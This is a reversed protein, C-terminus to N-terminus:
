DHALKKGTVRLYCYAFISNAYELVGLKIKAKIM